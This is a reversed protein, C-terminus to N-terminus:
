GAASKCDINASADMGILQTIRWGDPFRRVLYLTARDKPPLPTGDAKLRSFRFEALALNRGVVCAEISTKTSHDYGQAKLRAFEAELGALDGMPSPRDFRYIRETIARADHANWLRLYEDMFAAVEAGRDDARAPAAILLALVALCALRKM